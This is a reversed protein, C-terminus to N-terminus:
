LFFSEIQCGSLGLTSQDKLIGPILSSSKKTQSSVRDQDRM